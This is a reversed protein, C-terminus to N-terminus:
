RVLATEKRHRTALLPDMPRRASSTHLLRPRHVLLLPLPGQQDGHACHAPWLSRSLNPRRLVSLFIRDAVKISLLMCRQSRDALPPTLRPACRCSTRARFLGIAVDFTSFGGFFSVSNVALCAMLVYMATRASLTRSDLDGQVYDYPLSVIVNDRQADSSVCKANILAHAHNVAFTRRCFILCACWLM